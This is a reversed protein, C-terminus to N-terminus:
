CSEMPEPHLLKKGQSYSFSKIPYLHYECVHLQPLTSVLCTWSIVRPSLIGLFFTCNSLECM